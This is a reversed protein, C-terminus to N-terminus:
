NMRTNVQPVVGIHSRLSEQTVQKIDQQDILIRGSQIDYFRFLLKYLFSNRNVRFLTSKGGGSPGVLAVTQGPNVEFSVNQIAPVQGDYSFSV